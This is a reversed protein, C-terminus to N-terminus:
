EIRRMVCTGRMQSELMLADVSLSHRSHVADGQPLITTLASPFRGKDIFDIVSIAGTLEDVFSVGQNGVGTDVGIRVPAGDDYITIFFEFKEKPFSCKFVQIAAFTPSGVFAVLSAYLLRM